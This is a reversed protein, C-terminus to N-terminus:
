KRRKIFVRGNASQVIRGESNMYYDHIGDNKEIMPNHGCTSGTRGTLTGDQHYGKYDKYTRLIMNDDHCGTQSAGIIEFQEPCYKEMFSSSVGMVGDYDSPIADVFNVEIADYNDYKVYGKARIEKHKSFKINDAMTMLNLHQHRRGHDLNTFWCCNRFKVLGTKDDYVGNAYNHENTTPVRFFANGKYFGKGLWMKNNKIYNFIDKYTINGINGIILFEKKGEMIWEVFETFLSFPPNTIIMDVEDRLKSIESSRFDGDGELYKWQLDSINVKKNRRTLTFIKGKKHTTHENFNPDMKEFDTIDFLTFQQYSGKFEYYEKKSDAAFSTSILKKLGLMEFNQAFFKTFNSWEPDDCPLLVTKDKFVNPNYELYANVERQIDDYQTYFEDFKKKKARVLSRNGAM